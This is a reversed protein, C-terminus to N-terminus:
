TTKLHDHSFIDQSRTSLKAVFRLTQLDVYILYGVPLPWHHPLFHRKPAPEPFYHFNLPSRYKGSSDLGKVPPLPEDQDQDQSASNHADFQGNSAKVTRPLVRAVQADSMQEKSKLSMQPQPKSASKVSKRKAPAIKPTIEESIPPSLKRRKRSQSGSSVNSATKM